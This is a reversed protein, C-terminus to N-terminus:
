VRAPGLICHLIAETFCNFPRLLLIEATNPTTVIVPNTRHFVSNGLSYKYGSTLIKNLILHFCNVFYTRPICNPM